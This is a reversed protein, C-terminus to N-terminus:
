FAHFFYLYKKIKLIIKKILCLTFEEVNAKMKLFLSYEQNSEVLKTNLFAKMRPTYWQAEPRNRLSAYSPVSLKPIVGLALFHSSNICYPSNCNNGVARFRIPKDPNKFIDQKYPSSYCKKMIGTDLRLVFSWDGAYCFEKRKVMFNKMNFRFIPSNFMEGFKKYENLSYKTMLTIKKGREDRTPFVQPPAGVNKECLTKIEELYPLYEDCLNFQVVFSCGVNKIKRVNEFFDEIKRLRALELYHFSFAFHLRELEERTLSAIIEDFREKLTGNTTINVYHGQQLICRIIEPMEPSLLTEGEGCISIYCIGGLRDKSLARGIHEPSYRFNPLDGKKRGRQAEYCYSCNLNCATGPVLCEIFRKIKDM